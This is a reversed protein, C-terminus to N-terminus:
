SVERESMIREVAETESIGCDMEADVYEMEERVYISLEFAEEESVDYNDMIYEATCMRRYANHVKRVVDSPLTIGAWEVTNAKIDIQLGAYTIM